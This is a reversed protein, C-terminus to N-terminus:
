VGCEQFGFILKKINIEMNRGYGKQFEVKELDFGIWVKM